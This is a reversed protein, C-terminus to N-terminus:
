KKEHNDSNLNKKDLKDKEFIENRLKKEHHEEEYSLNPWQEDNKIHNKGNKNEFHYKSLANLSQWSKSLLSDNNESIKNKADSYYSRELNHNQM